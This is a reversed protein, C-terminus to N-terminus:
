SHGQTRSSDNFYFDELWDKALPYGNDYSLTMWTLCEYIDEEVEIGEFYMIALDYQALANGEKALKMTQNFLKSEM